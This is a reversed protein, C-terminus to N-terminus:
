SQVINDPFVNCLRAISRPDIHALGLPWDIETRYVPTAELLGKDEVEMPYEQIGWLFEGVGYKVAYISTSVDSTYLSLPDETNTIIETIQDAKVGIDALKVGAYVDIIRGFQDQAQNLLQARRLLSRVALLCKKNMYLADPKHGSISYILQDLKDLFNHQNATDYLIGADRAAGYTGGCDILQTTYGEAYIDDVRKSIGKFEEPDSVPSGNIFKDNFKYAIARVMMQQQVARADAITNKARAIAKDTDILGGLLSITETKQMFTGTSESYGANLKRFGVSPLDQYKVVATSLTGITEWPIDQMISSEMLLCDAVSKRLVDTEIKSLETLTWPM